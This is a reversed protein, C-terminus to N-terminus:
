KKIREKLFDRAALVKKTQMEAYTHVSKNKSNVKDPHVYTLQMKAWSDLFKEDGKKPESLLCLINMAENVTMSSFNINEDESPVWGEAPVALFGTVVKSKFTVLDFGKLRTEINNFWLDYFSRDSNFAEKLALFDKKKLVEPRAMGAGGGRGEHNSMNSHIPFNTKYSVCGDQHGFGFVVMGEIWDGKVLRESEDWGAIYIMVEDGIDFFNYPRLSMLYPKEISAEKLVLLHNIGMRVKQRRAKVADIEEQILEVEKQFDESTKEHLLCPTNFKTKPSGVILSCTTTIRYSYRCCGGGTHKCWGCMNFTTADYARDKSKKDIPEDEGVWNGELRGIRIDQPNEYEKAIEIFDKGSKGKLLNIKQYKEKIHSTLSSEFKRASKILEELNLSGLQAVEEWSHIGRLTYEVYQFVEDLKPLQPTLSNKIKKNKM